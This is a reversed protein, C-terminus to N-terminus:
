VWSPTPFDRKPTLPSGRVQGVDETAGLRHLFSRAELGWEHDAVVPAYLRGLANAAWKAWQPFFQNSTTRLARILGISSSLHTLLLVTRRHRAGLTESRGKSSIPVPDSTLISTGPGLMYVLQTEVWGFTSDNWQAVFADGPDPLGAGGLALRHLGFHVDGRLPPMSTAPPDVQGELITAIRHDPMAWSQGSPDGLLELLKNVGTYTATGLPTTLSTGALTLNVEGGALEDVRQWADPLELSEKTWELDVTAFVVLGYPRIHAELRASTVPPDPKAELKGAHRLPIGHRVMRKAVTAPVPTALQYESLTSWFRRDVEADSAFPVELAVGRVPRPSQFLGAFAGPLGVESLRDHVRTSVYSVRLRRIGVKTV